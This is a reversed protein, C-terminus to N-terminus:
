FFNNAYLLKVPLYVTTSVYTSVTCRLNVGEIMRRGQRGGGSRLIIEVRRDEYISVFYM